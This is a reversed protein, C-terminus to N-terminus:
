MEHQGQLSSMQCSSSLTRAAFHAVEGVSCTCAPGLQHQTQLCCGSTTQPRALRKCEVTRKFPAQRSRPMLVHQALQRPRSSSTPDRLVGYRM